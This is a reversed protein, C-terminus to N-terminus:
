RAPNLLPDVLVVFLTYRGAQKGALKGNIYVEAEQNIGNFALFVKKNHPFRDGAFIKKYWGVGRYYGPQDDMVDKTNWTHPLSVRSWSLGSVTSLSADASSDKSFYWSQNLPIVQRVSLMKKTQSFLLQPCFGLILICVFQSMIKVKRIIILMHIISPSYKSM